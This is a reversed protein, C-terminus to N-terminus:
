ELDFQTYANYSDKFYRNYHDLILAIDKDDFYMGAKQLAAKAKKIKNENDTKVGTGRKTFSITALYQAADLRKRASDVDWYLENLDEIIANVDVKTQVDDLYFGDLDDLCAEISERLFGLEQSTSHNPLQVMGTGAKVYNKRGVKRSCSIYDYTVDSGDDDEIWDVDYKSMYRYGDWYIKDGIVEIEYCEAYGGDLFHIMM